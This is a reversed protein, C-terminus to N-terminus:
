NYNYQAFTHNKQFLCFNHCLITPFCEKEKEYKMRVYHYFSSFDHCKMTAKTRYNQIKTDHKPMTHQM